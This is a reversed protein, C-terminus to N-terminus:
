LIFDGATIPDPSPIVLVIEIDSVGDGDTDGQVLWIPGGLSINEFRLQGAGAAGGGTFAASGIFSFAQDGAVGSNADIVSLDILDGALFDQIGDRETSNSDGTSRYVFTDNGAGGTLTDGRLGGYIMDDGAGGTLVDNGAGGFLRFKGNTENSGNFIMQETSTLNLGWVALTEGAAVNLDHTTVNYGFGAAPLGYFPDSGSILTITDIGTMTDDEFVLNYSGRLGLQDQAGGNGVVRDTVSFRGDGFFFFDNGHGGILHESGFGGFFTFHGDTEASGDFFVDEGAQLGAFWVKLREGSDVAADTMTLSYDYLNTGPDGFSTVSGSLLSIVEVNQLHAALVTATVNGQLIVQDNAGDGGDLDDGASLAGGMYFGDNGGLGSAQDQGGDSLDFIDGLPTGILIDDGATGDIIGDEVVNQNLVVTGTSYATTGGTSGPGSIDVTQGFTIGFGLSNDILHVTLTPAAGNFDSAPNFRINTGSGILLASATSRSGIDVWTSTNSNFYQWQGTAVSSGNAVVAIGGFSGASSGGPNALSFQADAADSYQGAFLSSVSQGSTPDDEVISAAEETGDGIVLPADNIATVDVAVSDSDQESSGDGTTGPDGGTNGLDNTTITLTRDGNYNAGPTYVLGNLATNIAAATGSFTMTSDGTGDGVSFTLGTTTSLTLGGTQILLTVSLNGAGADIDSVSILNSNAASFTLTGDENFMQVGPVANVPADNIANVDLTVTNPTQDTDVGGDATGGDDRVQFTFTAYGLGNEDPDPQYTLKGAELDSTSVFTGAVTIAIGDLYLDGSNPLTTLVIGAIDNGDVDSFGFSSSDFGTAGDENLTVTFDTGVPEDNVAVVTVTSNIVLTDAGGNAVGDGDVLTVTIDREGPTVNDIGPNFYYLQRLFAQVSAPTAGADLAIVVDADDGTTVTGISTVQGPNFATRVGAVFRVLNDEITIPNAIQIRLTGGSFDGSDIDGITMNAGVDILVDHTGETLTANDGELNTSTPADNVPLVFQSLVVSGASYQSGPGFTPPAPNLDVIGGDIIAAGGSEILRATLTPAAGFFDQAPNFRILTAANM